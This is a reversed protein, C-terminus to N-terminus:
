HIVCTFSEGYDKFDTASTLYSKEEYAKQPLFSDKTEENSQLASSSSSSYQDGHFNGHFLLKDNGSCFNSISNFNKPPHILTQHFNKPPQIEEGDEVNPSSDTCDHLFTTMDSVLPPDPQSWDFQRHLNVNGKQSLYLLMLLVLQLADLQYQTKLRYKLRLFDFESTSSLTSDHLTTNKDPPISEMFLQHDHHPPLKRIDM